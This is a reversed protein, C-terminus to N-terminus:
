DVLHFDYVKEKFFVFYLHIKFERPLYEHSEFCKVWFIIIEIGEQAPFCQVYKYTAKRILVSFGLWLLRV